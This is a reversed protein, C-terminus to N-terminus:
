SQVREAPKSTGLACGSGATIVRVQAPQAPQPMRLTQEILEDMATGRRTDSTKLSENFIGGGGEGENGVCVPMPLRQLRVRAKTVCRLSTHRRSEGISSCAHMGLELGAAAM